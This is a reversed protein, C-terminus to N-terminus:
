PAITKWEFVSAENVHVRDTARDVRGLQTGSLRREIDLRIQEAEADTPEREFVLELTLEATYGKM